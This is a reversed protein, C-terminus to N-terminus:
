AAKRVSVIISRDAGATRKITFDWGNLLMMPPTVLIANDTGQASVIWKAIVRQTAGVKEYARIEFADGPLVTSLDWFTQYVGANADAQAAKTAGDIVSLETTGATFTRSHPSVQTVAM